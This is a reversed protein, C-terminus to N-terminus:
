ELLRDIRDLPDLQPNDQAAGERNQYLPSDSGPLELGIDYPTYHGAVTASHAQSEVLAGCEPCKLSIARTRQNVVLLEETEVIIEITRRKTM